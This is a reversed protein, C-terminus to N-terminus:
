IGRLCWLDHVLFSCPKWINTDWRRLLVMNRGVQLLLFCTKEISSYTHLLSFTVKNWLITKIRCQTNINIRLTIHLTKQRMVQPKHARFGWESNLLSPFMMKYFGDKYTYIYPSLQDKGQMGVPLITVKIIRMIYTVRFWVAQVENRKSTRLLECQVPFTTVHVETM